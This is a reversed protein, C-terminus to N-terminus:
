NGLKKNETWKSLLNSWKPKLLKSGTFKNGGGDTDLADLSREQYKLPLDEDLVLLEMTEIWEDDPIIELRKYKEFLSQLPILPWRIFQMLEKSLIDSLKKGINEKLKLQGNGWNIVYDLLEEEEIQLTPNELIFTM